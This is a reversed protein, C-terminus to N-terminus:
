LGAWDGVGSFRTTGVLVVGTVGGPDFSYSAGQKWPLAMGLMVFIQGSRFCSSLLSGPASQATSSVQRRMGSSSLMSMLTPMLCDTKTCGSSPVPISPPGGMWLTYIWRCSIYRLVVLGQSAGSYPRQHMAWLHKLHDSTLHVSFLSPAQATNCKQLVDCYTHLM